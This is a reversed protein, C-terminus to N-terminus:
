KEGVLQSNKKEKAVSLLQGASNVRWDGHEESDGGRVREPPYYFSKGNKNWKKGEFEKVIRM